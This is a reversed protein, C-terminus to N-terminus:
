RGINRCSSESSHCATSGLDKPCTADGDRSDDDSVHALANSVIAWALVAPIAPSPRSSIYQQFWDKESIFVSYNTFIPDQLTKLRVKYSARGFPIRARCGLGSFSGRGVSCMAGCTNVVQDDQSVPILLEASFGCGSLVLENHEASLFYPGEDSLGWGQGGWTGTAKYDTSSHEVMHIEPGVVHVTSNELSIDVVQLTADGLSLRPPTHNTDCTLNLGPLYCGPTTGFPYPVVVDGCMATTCNGAPLLGSPGQGGAAVDGCM